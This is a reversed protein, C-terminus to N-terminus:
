SIFGMCGIGRTCGICCIFGIFWILGTIGIFGICGINCDICGTPYIPSYAMYGM